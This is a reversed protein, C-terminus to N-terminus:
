FSFGYFVTLFNNGRGSNGFTYAVVLYQSQKIGYGFGLNSYGLKNKGSTWDALLTMRKTLPQELGLLVGGKTGFDAGGNVQRYVGGTIRLENASKFSKSANAYLMASRNSGASDNLPIFLVAGVAVAVDKNKKELVKWKVNPQLESAFGTEGDTFYYNVGVEVNKGLGYTVSPGYSQFGRNVYKDFHAYSELNLYVSKKEQVDTSPVFLISSQAAAKICAGVILIAPTFKRRFRPIRFM